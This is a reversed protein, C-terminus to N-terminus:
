APAGTDPLVAALLDIVQLSSLSIHLRRRSEALLGLLPLRHLQGRPLWRPLWECNGSKHLSTDWISAFLHSHSESQSLMFCHQLSCLICTPPM